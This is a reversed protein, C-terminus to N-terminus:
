FIGFAWFVMSLIIALLLLWTVYKFAKEVIKESGTIALITIMFFRGGDFIGLPLMNAVAVSFNIMFLWWLLYYIFQTFDENGKAVYYVGPEQFKSLFRSIFGKFGTTTQSYSAIGIVPRSDNIPDKGLIINYQKETGNEITIITAEEGPKKEVLALSIDKRTKIEKGNINVIIGSIKNKIAPQNQYLKIITKNSNRESSNLDFIYNPMFYSENQLSIKTFNVNNVSLTENTVQMNSFLFPAPGISYSYDAIVVGSASYAVISFWGLLLFFIIALLTNAFVGAGRITLQPFIKAKRLQKDDQEVFFALFPGLFGFGTSKIRINNFKMFIGHFGEHFIAVLAIAIIWYTFYFPPLWTTKFLSPLYPILPMIPPIKVAQVIEPKTFLYVLQVLFYISFAMLLYGCIVIIYSFFKLAKKNKSGLYDILEMGIKTRYLYMIGDRKLNKRKVYLFIGVALSFLVLFALDYIIFSM